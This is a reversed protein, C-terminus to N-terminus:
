YQLQLYAEAGHKSIYDSKESPSMTSRKLGQSTFRGSADRAMGSKPADEESRPLQLYAEMGMETIAQAKQEATMQSRYRPAQEVKFWHPAKERKAQRLFLLVDHPDTASVADVNARLLADDIASDLLGLRAGEEVIMTRLTSNTDGNNM